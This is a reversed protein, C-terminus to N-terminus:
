VHMLTFSFAPSLVLVPVTRATLEKRVRKVAVAWFPIATAYMVGCTTPSDKTPASEIEQEDLLFRYFGRLHSLRSAM